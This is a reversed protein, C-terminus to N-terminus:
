FISPFGEKKAYLNQTGLAVSGELKCLPSAETYVSKYALVHQLQPWHDFLLPLRM